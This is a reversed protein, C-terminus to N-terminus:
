EPKMGAVWERLMKVAERDVVSTALPPMHGQERMSVRHLLVSREPRGPAILRAGALGFTSHLPKVGLVRMKDAETTFELEMQANGGGAEVHCTSCNSHLFSRARATLDAKPDYPSVLKRYKEPNFTLLNSPEAVRQLRTATRREM